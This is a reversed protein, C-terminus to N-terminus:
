SGVKSKENNKMEKKIAAFVKKQVEKLPGKIRCGAAAFHGGGGFSKAIKEVNVRGKSRLSLKFVDKDDERFFVAAEIGKVKRPFDVFDESDEATTGTKKFMDATTTIWAIGDKTDITALSLGLLKMSKFPISEFLEKAISWPQAGAQILHCAIRLSEPSTNSYRFGGTDVLLATYLNTAINKDITIKLATLLKYILIGTAAAGPDIVSASLKKYLESREADDPPIHHDIIVTKKAKLEKFGTRDLTNCDVICLVDVEKKPQTQKISKASPLFKLIEPVGDKSLAYIEKKGMQKLGLALALVSGIADGEPNIHGVLIFSKNQRLVNLLRSSIKTKM